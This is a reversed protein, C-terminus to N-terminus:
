ALADLCLTRCASGSASDLADDTVASDPYSKVGALSGFTCLGVTAKERFEHATVDSCPM